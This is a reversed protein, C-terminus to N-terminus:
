SRPARGATRTTRTRSAWTVDLPGFAGSGVREITGSGDLLSGRWTVEASRETAMNGGPRNDPRAYRCAREASPELRADIEVRASARLLASIPCGEDAARVAEAFAAEDIGPVRARVAVQSLVVLHSGDVEDVDVTARVDLREPPTGAGTLEGALSM